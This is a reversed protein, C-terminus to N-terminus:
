LGANSDPFQFHEKSGSDGGSGMAYYSLTGRRGNASQPERRVRESISRLIIYRIWFSHARVTAGLLDSQLFLYLRM